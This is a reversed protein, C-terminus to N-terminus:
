RDVDDATLDVLKRAGLSSIVHKNALIKFKEV